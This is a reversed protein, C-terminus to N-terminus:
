EFAQWYFQLTAVGTSAITFETTTPFPSTIYLFGDPINESDTVQLFVKPPTAFARPFTITTSPSNYIEVGSQVGVAGAPGTPGTSGSGAPGTPGTPGGGGGSGAPVFCPTIPNAYAVPLTAM